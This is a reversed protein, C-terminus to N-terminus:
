MLKSLCERIASAGIGATFQDEGYEEQAKTYEEESIIRNKELPTLGPENVIFNEYYLVKELEKLTMDLSLDIRSPLSKLFWIHSVPAALEIHGM